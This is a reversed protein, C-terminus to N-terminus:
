LINGYPLLKQFYSSRELFQDATYTYLIYKDYATLSSIIENKNTLSSKLSEQKTRVLNFDDSKRVLDEKLQAIIDEAENLKQM